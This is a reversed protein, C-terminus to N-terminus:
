RGPEIDFNLTLSVGVRHREVVAYRDLWQFFTGCGIFGPRNDREPGVGFDKFCGVEIVFGKPRTELLHREEVLAKFDREAVFARVPAVVGEHVFSPEFIVDLVQVRRLFDFNDM